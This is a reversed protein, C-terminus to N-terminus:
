RGELWRRAAELRRELQVLTAETIRQIGIRRNLEANIEAHSRRTRHALGSVIASNQERLKRKRSRPSAAPDTEPEPTPVPQDFGQATLEFAATARRAAPPAPAEEVLGPIPELGAHAAEEDVPAIELPRGKADLPIASIASFLSIQEEGALERAEAAPDGEREGDRAGFEDTSS